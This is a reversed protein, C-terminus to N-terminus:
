IYEMNGIILKCVSMELLEKPTYATTVTFSCHGPPCPQLALASNKVEDIRQNGWLCGEFKFHNVRIINILFSLYFLHNNVDYRSIIKKM